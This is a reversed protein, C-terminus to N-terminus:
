YNFLYPITVSTNTDVFRAVFYKSGSPINVKKMGTAIKIFTKNEDFFWVVDTASYSHEFTIKNYGSLVPM